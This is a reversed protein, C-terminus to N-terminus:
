AELTLEPLPYCRREEKPASPLLFVNKRDARAPQNIAEILAEQGERLAAEVRADKIKRIECQDLKRASIYARGRLGAFPDPANARTSIRGIAWAYDINTKLHPDPDVDVACFKRFLDIM